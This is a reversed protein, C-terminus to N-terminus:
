SCLGVDGAPIVGFEIMNEVLCISAIVATETALMTGGTELVGLVLVARVYDMIERKEEPWQFELLDSGVQHRWRQGAKKTVARVHALAQEHDM